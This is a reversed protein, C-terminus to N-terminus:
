IKMINPNGGGTSHNHDCVSSKSSNCNGGLWFPNLTWASTGETYLHQEALCVCRSFHSFSIYFPFCQSMCKLSLMNKLDPFIAILLGDSAQIKM